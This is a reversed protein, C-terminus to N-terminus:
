NQVEPIYMPEPVEDPRMCCSCGGRYGRRCCGWRCGGGGGYGPHGYGGGYGPGGHNYGGGGYGPGYGGGNQYGGGYGPGYGRGYDQVGAKNENKEQTQEAAVTSTVFLAFVLLLGFLVLTKSAM